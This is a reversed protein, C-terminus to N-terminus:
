KSRVIRASWGAEKELRTVRGIDPDDLRDLRRELTQVAPSSGILWWVVGAVIGLGGCTAVITQWTMPHPRKADRELLREVGTGIKSVDGKLSTLDHGQVRVEASLRALGDEVKGVREELVEHSM